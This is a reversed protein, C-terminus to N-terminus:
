IHYRIVPANRRPARHYKLKPFGVMLVGHCTHKEPLSLEQALAPWQSAAYNVYGAWCSGLGFSPLALELYALATHCDAAANGFVDSAYAFVLQPADRCIKDIGKDWESILVEMNLIRAFKPRTKVVDRMWDAVHSGIKVVDAKKDVVLWKVTQRNAATPACCAITLIQEFVDKPVIQDKYQRVSRRSRLFHEAHVATLELEKEFPMCQDPSLFGLSFAGKPCVAVCHGCQICIKEAGKVPVPGKESMKIIHVPCAMACVGDKDCKDGDIKFLNM